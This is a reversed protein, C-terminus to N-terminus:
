GKVLRTRVSVLGLQTGNPLQVAYLVAHLLKPPNNADLTLRYRFTMSAGPRLTVGGTARALFNPDGDGEPMSTPRWTGTASDFRQLSGLACNCPGGVIQFLPAVDHETHTSHNTLTAAFQIAPSGATIAAPIRTLQAKVQPQHQPVTSPRPGHPSGCSVLVVTGAALVVSIIAVRWVRGASSQSLRWSVHCQV